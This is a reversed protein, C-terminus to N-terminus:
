RSGGIIRTPRGQMVGRALAMNPSQHEEEEVVLGTVEISAILFSGGGQQDRYCFSVGM